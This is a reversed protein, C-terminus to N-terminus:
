SGSPVFKPAHSPVTRVYPGLPLTMLTSCLGCVQIFTFRVFATLTRRTEALPVLDLRLDKSTSPILSPHYPPKQVAAPLGEEQDM